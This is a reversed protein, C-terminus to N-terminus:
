LQGTGYKKILPMLKEIFSFKAKLKEKKMYMLSTAVKVITSIEFDKIQGKDDVLNLTHLMQTAGSRLATIDAEYVDTKEKLTNYKRIMTALETKECLVYVMGNHHVDDKLNEVQLTIM